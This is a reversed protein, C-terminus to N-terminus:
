WDEKKGPFVLSQFVPLFKEIRCGFWKAPFFHGLEHLVVYLLSVFLYVTGGQIGTEAWNIALLTMIFHGGFPPMQKNILICIDALFPNTFHSFKGTGKGSSIVPEGHTYTFSCLSRAEGDTEFYEELTPNQIFHIKNMTKEVLDTM